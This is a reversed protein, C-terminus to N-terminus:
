LLDDHLSEDRVRFPNGPLSGSLAFESRGRASQFKCTDVYSFAVSNCIYPNVTFAVSNCIIFNDLVPKPIAQTLPM